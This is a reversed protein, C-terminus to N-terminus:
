VGFCHLISAVTADSSTEDLSMGLAHAAGCEGAALIRFNLGAERARQLIRGHGAGSELTLTDFATGNLVRVGLTRLGAALAATRRHIGQAIQTLGEPGHYVAYMAATVAP